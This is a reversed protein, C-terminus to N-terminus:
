YTRKKKAKKTAHFLDSKLNYKHYEITGAYKNTSKHDLIAEKGKLLEKTKAYLENEEPKWSRVIIDRQLGRSFLYGKEGKLTRSKSDNMDKTMYRVLGDMYFVDMINVTGQGWIKLLEKQEVYPLNCIMHYHFVNRENLKQLEIVAVYKLGTYRYKLRQIFKKFEPNCKSLNQYKLEEYEYGEDMKTETENRFTLSIFKSHGVDFNNEILERVTDKRTKQRQNYNKQEHEGIFDKGIQHNGGASWVNAKEYVTRMIRNKSIKYKTEYMEMLERM